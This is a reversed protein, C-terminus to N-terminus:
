SSRFVAFIHSRLWPIRALQSAVWTPVRSAVPMLLTMGQVDPSADGFLRRLELRDIPVLHPNGDSVRTLDYSIIRGGKRVLREMERAIRLRVVPDIVSSLMVTQMVIDFSQSAFPLDAGNAVILEATPLQKRAAEVDVELLDAGTLNRESMGASRLAVLDDGGGCGVDLLRISSREGLSDVVALIRRQREAAARAMAPGVREYYRRLREDSARREYESVVRKADNEIAQDVAPPIGRTM